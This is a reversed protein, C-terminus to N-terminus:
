EEVIALPAVRVPVVVHDTVVDPSVGSLISFARSPTTSPGPTDNTQSVAFSASPDCVSSTLTYAPESLLEFVYVTVTRLAGSATEDEIASPEVREPVAAHVAVDFAVFTSKTTSPVTTFLSVEAGNEYESSVVLSEFPACVSSSRAPSARVVTVIVTALVVSATVWFTLSPWTSDPVNVHVAVGLVVTELM